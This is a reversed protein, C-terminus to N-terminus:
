AAVLTRLNDVTNKSDPHTQALGFLGDDAGEQQAERHPPAELAGSAL